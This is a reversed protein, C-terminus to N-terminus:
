RTAGVIPIHRRYFHVNAATKALYNTLATANGSGSLSRAQAYADPELVAVELQVSNPLDNSSVFLVSGNTNFPVPYFFSNARDNDHGYEYANENGFQDFARIKLHIVGDAVRHFNTGSFNQKVVSAFFDDCLSNSTLPANTTALYRYLTGAGAGGAVTNSVAYGIGLWQANTRVLLFIEQAQNTFLAGAQNQITTNTQTWGWFLNTINPNQADSMQALDSAVLDVVTGGSDAVVTQKVGTRFARQTQVFMATLGVVIMVLLTISVLM